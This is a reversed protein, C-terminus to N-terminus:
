GWIVLKVPNEVTAILARLTDLRTVDLRVVVILTANTSLTAADTPLHATEVKTTLKEAIATIDTDLGVLVIHKGLRKALADVFALRKSKPSCFTAAAPSGVIAEADGIAVVRGSLYALILVWTLALALGGFGAAAVILVPNKATTGTVAGVSTLVYKYKSGANYRSVADNLANTLAATLAGSKDTPAYTATVLFNQKEQGEGSLAVDFGIADSVATAIAPNRLWGIITHGFDDCIKTLDYANTTETENVSVAYLAATTFKPKALAAAVGAALSTAVVITVIVLTHRRFLGLLDALTM